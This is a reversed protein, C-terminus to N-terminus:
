LKVLPFIGLGLLQDRNLKRDALSYRVLFNPKMKKQSTSLSETKFDWATQRSEHCVNTQIAFDHEFGIM